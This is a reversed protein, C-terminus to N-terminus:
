WADFAPMTRGHAKGIEDLRSLLSVYDEQNGIQAFDSEIQALKNAEIYPSVMRIVQHYHADASNVYSLRAIGMGQSVIVVGLPVCNALLLWRHINLRGLLKRGRSELVKADIPPPPELNRKIESALSDAELYIHLQFLSVILALILLIMWMADVMMGSPNDRAVQLYVSNKYNRFGFSALDLLGRTVAHLGPGLWSQWVGSGIASVLITGLLTLLGALIQKLRHPLSV